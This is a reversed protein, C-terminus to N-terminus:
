EERGLKTQTQEAWEAQHRRMATGGGSHIVTHCGGDGSLYQCLPMAEYDSAKMGM